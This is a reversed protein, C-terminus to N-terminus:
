KLVFEIRSIDPRAIWKNRKLCKIYITGNTDVKFEHEFGSLLETEGDVYEIFVPGHPQSGESEYQHILHKLENSEIQSSKLRSHGIFVIVLLGAVGVGSAINPFFAMIAFVVAAINLIITM